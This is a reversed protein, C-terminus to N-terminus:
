YAHAVVNTVTYAPVDVKHVKTIWGTLWRILGLSFINNGIFIFTEHSETQISHNSSSQFDLKVM